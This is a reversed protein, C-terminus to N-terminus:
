HEPVKGTIGWILRSLNNAFHLDNRFDVWNRSSLFGPLNADRLLVPILRLSQSSSHAITLARYYEEEVWGSAIAEPSIIFAVCKSEELGKELAKAFLDGPRIEDRDLWVKIGSNELASKLKSGWDKDISNHSLFVDYEKTVKDHVPGKKSTYIKETSKDNEDYVEERSDLQDLINQAIRQVTLNSESKMFSKINQRVAHNYKALQCLAWLARIKVNQDSSHLELQRRSIEKSILNIDPICSNQILQGHVATVIESSLAPKNIIQNVGIKRLRKLIRPDNVVTLCIIPLEMGRIARVKTCVDIGGQYPNASLGDKTPIMIDTIVLDILRDSLLIKTTEEYDTAISVTAGLNEQLGQIIEPIFFPEDDVLLINPGTYNIESKDVPMKVESVIEDVHKTANELYILLLRNDVPRKAINNLRRLDTTVQKRISISQSPKMTSILENINKVLSHLTSLLISLLLNEDSSESNTKILYDIDTNIKELAILKKIANIRMLTVLTALEIGESPM